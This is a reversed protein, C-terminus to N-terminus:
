AKAEPDARVFTYCPNVMGRFAGFIYDVHNRKLGAHCPLAVIGDREDMEAAVGFERLRGTIAEAPYPHEARLLYAFPPVHKPTDAPTMGLLGFLENFRKWNDTRAAAYADRQPWHIQLLERVTNRKTVDLCHFHDWVHKDPFFEGVLAAGFQMPFWRAFDYVAFRGYSGPRQEGQAHYFHDRCDEVLPVNETSLDEVDACPIGWRHCVLYADAGRKRAEFTFREGFLGRLTEIYGAEGTSAWVGVTAPSPLRLARLASQLAYPWSPLYTFEAEFYESLQTNIAIM